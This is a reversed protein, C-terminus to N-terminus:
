ARPSAAARPCTSSRAARGDCSRPGGSNGTASSARRAARPRSRAARRRGGRARRRSARARRLSSRPAARPGRPAGASARGRREVALQGPEAAQEVAVQGVLLLQDHWHDEVMRLRGRLGRRSGAADARSLGGRLALSGASGLFGPGDHLGDDQGDVQQQRQRQDEDHQQLAGLAAPEADAAAAPMMVLRPAAVASELTVQTSPAAKTTVLRVSVTSAARSAPPPSPSRCRPAARRGGRSPAPRGPARARPRGAAAGRRAAPRRRDRAAGGAPALVGGRGAARAVEPQGSRVMWLM